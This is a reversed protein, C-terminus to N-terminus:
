APQFRMIAGHGVSKADEELIRFGEDTVLKRMTEPNNKSFGANQKAFPKSDDSYQLIIQTAPRVIAKMSKLYAAIIEVDLHVFVGFSFIFDISRPGIGPFDTGNNKILTLNDQSFNKKLEDLLEQHYDVAHIRRFKLMYRTWRGGGPGIEVADHNEHVYPLLWHDRVKKLIPNDEPDGWHLGYIGQKDQQGQKSAGQLMKLHIDTELGPM